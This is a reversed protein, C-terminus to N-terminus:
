GGRRVHRGRGRTPTDFQATRPPQTPAANRAEIRHMASMLSLANIVRQCERPDCGSLKALKEVTMLSKALTKIINAQEPTHLLLEFDPWRKLRFKDAPRLWSATTGDFSNLGILWLLPDIGVATRSLSRSDNELSYTAVSVTDPQTPFHELPTGWDFTLDRLDIIIPSHGTPLLSLLIPRAIQRLANVATAAGSWGSAPPPAPPPPSSPPPSAAPPVVSAVLHAEQETM